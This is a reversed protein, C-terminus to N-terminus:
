KGMNQPSSLSRGSTSVVDIKVVKFVYFKYKVTNMVKNYIINFIYEIIYLNKQFVSSVFIKFFAKSIKSFPGNFSSLLANSGM